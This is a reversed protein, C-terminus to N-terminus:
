GKNTPFIADKPLSQGRSNTQWTEVTCNGSSEVFRSVPLLLFQLLRVRSLFFLDMTLHVRLCPYLSHLTGESRSFLARLCVYFKPSPSQQSLPSPSPYSLSSAPLPFSLVCSPGFFSSSPCFSRKKREKGTQELCTM